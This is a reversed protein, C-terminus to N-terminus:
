YCLEKEKREKEGSIQHSLHRWQSDSSREEGRFKMGKKREMGSASKRGKEEPADREEIASFPVRKQIFDNGDDNRDQISEAGVGNMNARGEQESLGRGRAELSL